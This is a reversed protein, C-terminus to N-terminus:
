VGEKKLKVGKWIPILYRGERKMCVRKGCECNYVVKKHRINGEFEKEGTYELQVANKYKKRLLRFNRLDFM